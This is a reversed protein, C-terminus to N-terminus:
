RHPRAPCSGTDPPRSRRPTSPQSGTTGSRRDASATSRALYPRAKVGIASTDDPQVDLALRPDSRLSEILRLKALETARWGRHEGAAGAFQRMNALVMPVVLVAAIVPVARRNPLRNGVLGGIALWVFIVGAYVYGSRAGYEVGFQGRYLARLIQEAALAAIAAIALSPM